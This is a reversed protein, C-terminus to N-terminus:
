ILKSYCTSQGFLNIAQSEIIITKSKPIYLYELDM